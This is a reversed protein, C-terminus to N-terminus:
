DNCYCFPRLAKDSICRPQDGYKNSRVIAGLLKVGSRSHVTYTAEFTGGGPETALNLFYREEPKEEPALFQLLSIGKNETDVHKLGQAIYQVEHVIKLSLQACLPQAAIVRNLDKVMQEALRSAISSSTNITTATYCACYHEPIWADMCSRSEPVPQFLSVSRLTKNIYSKTPSRFNQKLVDVLMQHLDFPTTLRETNTQMSKNLEPFANRIHEPVVIQLLPMRDEIRGVFTNRIRDIRAGHDSFFVLVTNQLFGNNNLWQLFELFDDDGYTLFNPYEHALEALFSFLFKREKRYASLYQKLYEIHLKHKPTEQYCLASSSQLKVSRNELFLLVPSLKEKVANKQKTGLWFPRFYHTTPQHNFGKTLYNFLGFDPMDEAFLTAYDHSSFNKWLLPFPDYPESSYDIAPVESSWVRLGTLLAMLNPLTNEGVKMYGKFDYSQLDKTLYRFTKPMKRVAASRSVSDLGFMLVSLQEPSERGFTSGVVKRIGTLLKEMLVDGTASKQCVVNFFDASVYHPPTFPTMNSLIVHDDDIYRSLIEYKCTVESPSLHLQQLTTSNFRIMGEYDVYVVPPPGVCILPKPDWVFQM